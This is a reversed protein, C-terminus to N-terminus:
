RDVTSRFACNFNGSRFVACFRRLHISREGSFGLQQAHRGVPHNRIPSDLAVAETSFASRL